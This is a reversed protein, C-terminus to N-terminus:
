RETALGLMRWGAGARVSAGDFTKAMVAARPALVGYALAVPRGLHLAAALTLRAPLASPRFALGAERAPAGRRQFEQRLLHPWGQPLVAGAALALVHDTEFAGALAAGPAGAGLMMRCGAEDGLKRLAETDAPSLLVARRIAGEVVGEVLASFTRAAPLPDDGSVVLADFM